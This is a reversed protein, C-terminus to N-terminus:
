LRLPIQHQIGEEEDTDSIMPSPQAFPILSAQIPAVNSMPREITIPYVLNRHCFALPLGSPANDKQSQAHGPQRFFRGLLKPAGNPRMVPPVRMSSITSGFLVLWPCRMSPFTSALNAVRSM